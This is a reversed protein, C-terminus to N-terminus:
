GKLGDGGYGWSVRQKREGKLISCQLWSKPKILTWSFNLLLFVIFSEPPAVMKMEM